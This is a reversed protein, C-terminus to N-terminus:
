HIGNIKEFPKGVETDFKYLKGLPINGTRFLRIVLM